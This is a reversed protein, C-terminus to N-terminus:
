GRVRQIYSYTQQRFAVRERNDRVRDARRRHEGRGDDLGNLAAMETESLTFSAPVHLNDAIRSPTLSKPLVICDLQRLWRLVVAGAGVGHAEAISVITPDDLDAGSLPSYATMVIQHNACWARLEPQSLRTHLECQNVMPMVEAVGVLEELHRVCYNSVGIARARSEKYITELARWAELRKKQSLGPSLSAGDTHPPGPFHILLLDVADLKLNSLCGSFEDLVGDYASLEPQLMYELGGGPLM